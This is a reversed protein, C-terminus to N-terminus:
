LRMLALAAALLGIDRVGVDTLRPINTLTVIGLLLLAALASATRTRIGFLLAAGLLAEIAGQFYMFANQFGNPILALMWEPVWVLWVSPHFFKDIGFYLFVFALGIRLLFRPSM